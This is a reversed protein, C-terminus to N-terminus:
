KQDNGLVAAFLEVLDVKSKGGGAIDVLEDFSFKVFVNLRPNALIGISWEQNGSELAACYSLLWYMLMQRYDSSSFHKNTCKVEILTTGISFDGAGSSIWQYGSIVPARVLDEGECERQFEQLMVVLNQAVQLSATRDADSLAEPVRADFYERQRKAAVKLCFDWDISGKREVLQEAAAVAIEFLMARQLGSADIVAAAVAQLSSVSNSKRNIGAVLGQALHPFLAEFVGPIDRAITRPDHALRGIM